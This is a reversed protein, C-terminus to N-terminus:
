CLGQFIITPLSSEQQSPINEPAINFKWPTFPTREHHYIGCTFHTFLDGSFVCILPKLIGLDFVKNIGQFDEHCGGKRRVFLHVDCFFM